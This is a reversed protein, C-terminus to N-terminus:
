IQGSVTIANGFFVKFFAGSMRSQHDYKLNLVQRVIIQKRFDSTKELLKSDFTLRGGDSASSWRHKLPRIQIGGIEMGFQHVLNLVENKFDQKTVLRKNSVDQSAPAIMSYIGLYFGKCIARM